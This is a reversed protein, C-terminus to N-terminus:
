RSTFRNLVLLNYLFTNVLNLVNPNELSISYIKFIAAFLIYRMLRKCVYVYIYIYAIYNFVCIYVCTCVYM